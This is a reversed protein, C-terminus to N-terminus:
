FFCKKRGARLQPLNHEFGLPTLGIQSLRDIPPDELLRKCNYYQNAINTRLIRTSYSYSPWRSDQGRFHSSLKEMRLKVLALTNSLVRGTSSPKISIPVVTGSASNFAAM